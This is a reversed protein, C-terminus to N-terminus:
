FFGGGCLAGEPPRPPLDFHRSFSSIFCRRLVMKTKSMARVAQPRGDEDGAVGSAGFGVAGDRCVSDVSVAAGVPMASIIKMFPSMRVMSGALGLACAMAMLPFVMRAIPVFSSMM